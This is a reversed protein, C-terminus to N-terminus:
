RQKESILLYLKKTFFVHLSASYASYANTFVTLFCLKVGLMYPHQTLVTHM